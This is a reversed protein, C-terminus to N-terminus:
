NRASRMLLILGHGINYYMHVLVSGSVLFRTLYYCDQIHQEGARWSVAASFIIAYANRM